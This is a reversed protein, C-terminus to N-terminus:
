ALWGLWEGRLQAYIAGFTEIEGWVGREDGDLSRRVERERERKRENELVLGWCLWKTDGREFRNWGVPKSVLGREGNYGEFSAAEFPLSFLSLSLPLVPTILYGLLHLTFACSPFFFRPDRTPLPLFSHSSSYFFPKEMTLDSLSLSLIWSSISLEWCIPSVRGKRSRARKWECPFMPAGRKGKGKRKLKGKKKWLRKQEVGEREREGERARESREELPRWRNRERAENTREYRNDRWGRPSFLCGPRWRCWLPWKDDRAMQPSRPWGRAQEPIICTDEQASLVVINM